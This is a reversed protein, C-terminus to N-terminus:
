RLSGLSALMLLSGPSVDLKEVTRNTTCKNVLKELITYIKPYSKEMRIHIM